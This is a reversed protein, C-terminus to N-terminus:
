FFLYNSNILFFFNPVEWGGLFFIVITM